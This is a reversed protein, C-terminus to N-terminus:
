QPAIIDEMKLQRKPSMDKEQWLRKKQQTNGKLTVIIFKQTVGKKAIIIKQMMEVSTLSM